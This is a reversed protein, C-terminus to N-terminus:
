AHLRYLVAGSRVYSRGVLDAAVAGIPEDSRADEDRLYHRRMELTDSDYSALRGLGGDDFHLLLEGVGFAAGILQDEQWPEPLPVAPGAIWTAGDLRWSQLLDDRCALFRPQDRGRTDVGVVLRGGPEPLAGGVPDDHRRWGAEGRDDLRSWYEDGCVWLSRRGAALQVPPEPLAPVELERRLYTLQDAAPDIEPPVVVQVVTRENVFGWIRRRADLAAVLVPYPLTIPWAREHEVSLVHLDHSGAEWSVCRDGQVAIQGDLHYSVLAASLVERYMAVRDIVARVDPLEDLASRESALAGATRLLERLLLVRSPPRAPADSEIRDLAARLASADTVGLEGLLGSLTAPLALPEPALGSARLFREHQTAPEIASTIRIEYEDVPVCGDGDLRWFGIPLGWRETTVVGVIPWTEPFLRRHIRQDDDSLFPDGVTHSRFWGVVHEGDREGVRARLMRLAVADLEFGAVGDPDGPLAVVDSVVVQYGGHSEHHRGLLVGGVEGVHQRAHRRIGSLVEHHVQLRVPAGSEAVM